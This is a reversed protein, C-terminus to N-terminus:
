VAIEKIFRNVLVRSIQRRKNMKIFASKLKSATVTGTIQLSENEVLLDEGGPIIFFKNYGENNSELFKEVRVRSALERVKEKTKAYATMDNAVWRHEAFSKGDADYYRNQIGNRLSSGTGAIFFGIIKTGTSKRYWKFISKKIECERKDEILIDEFKNNKDRLVINDRITSFQAYTQYKEGKSNTNTTHYTRISDADGDHMIVTNVIDINHKKKFQMLIPRLAVLAETMPTNSLHESRPCPIALGRKNSGFAESLTILNKLACNFETATMQSNLYERLYVNSMRIENSNTSFSSGPSRNHDYGFGSDENGFGYFVFPINVKRCFMALVMVQEISAHLNSSMSGSRDLLLILGHSKGNPVYTSKKFINDDIKYRCIRNVDIDGTESIKQKAFKRAAKLMEFEKALLSVYQENKSKFEKLLKDQMIGFSNSLPRFHYYDKWFKQMLDHVIKHPTIIESLNPTPINLYVYEKSKESLLKAENKRFFEDTECSPVFNESTTSKSEKERLFENYNDSSDEESEDEDVGDEESENNDDLDEDTEVYDDKFDSDSDEDSEDFDTNQLTYYKEKQNQQQEDKSYEYISETIELVDNWTECAEVGSLLNLEIDTFNIGLSVGAKTYLNLRDIFSLGNIDYNKIGFFDQEILQKYARIFAPKLGPFRRKMKKEIRSDEVVNLFNKYNKNFKGTGTLANHWGEEPTELAHGVEHGTLLDYMDGSMDKWIPLTLIRTTLNFTATQVKRHEVTVNETAMLKALQTKSEQTFEM